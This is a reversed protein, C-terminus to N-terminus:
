PEYRPPLRRRLPPRTFRVFGYSGAVAKGVELVVDPLNARVVPWLNTSLVILALSRNTLNQQYEMNQDATILLEFGAAEAAAILEGNVLRGWGMEFATAVEYGSLAARLGIPLNADLLIRRMSSQLHM